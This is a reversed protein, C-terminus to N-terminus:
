WSPTTSLASTPMPSVPAIATAAAPAMRATSNPRRHGRGPTTTASTLQRSQEAPTTGPPAISAAASPPAGVRQRRSARQHAASPTPPQGAQNGFYNNSSLAPTAQQNGFPFEFVNQPRPPERNTLARARRRVHQVGERNRSNVQQPTRDRRRVHQVGERTRSNVQQPTRNMPPKEEPAAAVPYEISMSEGIEIPAVGVPYEIALATPRQVDAAAEDSDKPDPSRDAPLGAVKPTAAVVDAGVPYEIALAALPQVDAAAEDSDEPDPSPDAPLGAVKPTEAAIDARPPTDPLERLRNL